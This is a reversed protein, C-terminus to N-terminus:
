KKEQKSDKGAKRDLQSPKFTPRKKQGKLVAIEDKLRQIEEEQQQVREALREIIGLLTLVLPTREAEAIEPLQVIPAIAM